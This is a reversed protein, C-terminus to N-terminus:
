DPELGNPLLKVPKGIFFEGKGIWEKLIQAIEVAKKYPSFTATPIEKGQFIIRGSRLEAYSVDGLTKGTLQPYDHSYDVIKTFMEEDRIITYRLIEDNLIPIPLGIGVRLTAGYGRFTVGKLWNASMTKMDGTVAVTGAPGLPVGNERRPVNPNHQTGPGTVYGIGGGLFIRTGIGITLFLPDNLLPSLDGASCFTANGLNPKLVGMYTYITRDSLNVACNYSQYANRPNFIFADSCEDLTITKEISQAPYCDTGHSIARLSIPKGAVLDAIVHGGGYKMDPLEGEVFQQDKLQTAGIYVDVAAIGAYAEVDNLWVKQAKIRPKTHGFNIFAGSSCMPGFTGTTVVDVTDATKDFGQSDVMDAIQDATVVVAQKKKIKENIEEYSKEM